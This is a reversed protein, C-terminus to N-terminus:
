VNVRAKWKTPELMYPLYLPHWPNGNTLKLYYLDFEALLELVEAARGNLNGHHGWACIIMSSERAASLIWSDNEPGVPDAVIKLQRWDTSVLAFANAVILGDFGLMKARIIQRSVTPDSEVAGAKSPNLMLM